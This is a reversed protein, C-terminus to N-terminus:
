TRTGPHTRVRIELRTLYETRRITCESTFRGRRFLLYEQGEGRHEQQELKYAHDPLRDMLFSTVKEVSLKGEYVLDLYKYDGFELSASKRGFTQLKMGAPVPPFARQVVHIGDASPDGGM